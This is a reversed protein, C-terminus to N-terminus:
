RREMLQYHRRFVPVATGGGGGAAPKFAAAKVVWNGTNSVTFDVNKAGATGADLDYEGADQQFSNALAIGTYGTGAAPDSINSICQGVILCGDVTTTISVEPTTDTGTAGGEVDFFDTTDGGSVEMAFVRGFDTAGSMTVNITKDGSQTVEALSAFQLTGADPGGAQASGHLTANSENTITISSITTAEYWRVGVVISNGATCGALVVSKTTGGGFGSSADTPGVTVAFAM